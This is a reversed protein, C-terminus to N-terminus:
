KMGKGSALMTSAELLRDAYAYAAAKPWELTVVALWVYLMLVSAAATVAAFVSVPLGAAHDLYLRMASVGAGCLTLVLGVPKLGRMNRCFGYSVNEKFLLNFKKHDRTAGRLAFSAAEYAAEAKQPNDLEEAATPMPVPFLQSINRHYAAKTHHNLYDDSHRLMTVSPMGGWGAFMRPELRSGLVRAVQGLMFTLGVGSGAAVLSTNWWELNLITAIALVLPMAALLAPWLRAKIDYEDPLM